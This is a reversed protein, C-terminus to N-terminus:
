YNRSVLGSVGRRNHLGVAVEIAVRRNAREEAIPILDALTMGGVSGFREVSGLADLLDPLQCLLLQCVGASGDVGQLPEGETVARGAGAELGVVDARRRCASKGKLLKLRM